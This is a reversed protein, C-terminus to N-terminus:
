DNAALARGRGRREQGVPGGLRLDARLRLPRGQPFREDADPVGQRVDTRPVAPDRLGTALRRRAAHDPERLADHVPAPVAVEHTAGHTSDAVRRRPTGGAEPMRDIWSWVM